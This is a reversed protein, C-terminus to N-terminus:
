TKPPHPTQTHWGTNTRHLEDCHPYSFSLYGPIPLQNNISFSSSLNVDLSLCVHPLWCVHLLRWVQTRRQEDILHRIDMVLSQEQRIKSLTENSWIAKSRNDSGSRIALTYPLTGQEGAPTGLANRRKRYGWQEVISRMIAQLRNPM